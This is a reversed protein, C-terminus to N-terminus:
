RWPVSQLHGLYSTAIALLGSYVMICQSKFIVRKQRFSWNGVWAGFIKKQETVKFVFLIASKQVYKRYPKFDGYLWPLTFINWLLFACTSKLLTVCFNRSAFFSDRCLAWASRVRNPSIIRAHKLLFLTFKMQQLYDIYITLLQTFM